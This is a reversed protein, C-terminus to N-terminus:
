QMRFAVEEVTDLLLQMDEESTLPNIITVRLWLKEELETQVIYFKGEKIIKDRIAANIQNLEETDMGGQNYRFCVINADPELAAEFNAQEKVMEAFRKALDYRSDIYNSFYDKDYYKFATFAV